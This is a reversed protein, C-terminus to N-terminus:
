RQRSRARSAHFLATTVLLVGLHMLPGLGSAPAKELVTLDVYRGTLRKGEQQSVLLLYKGPALGEDATLTVVSGRVDARLLEHPVGVRIEGTANVTFSASAGVALSVPPASPPDSPEHRVYGLKNATFAAFWVHGDEDEVVQQINGAPASPVEYEHLTGNTPDLRAIRDAFHEAFWISGDRARILGAPGSAVYYPSPSTPFRAQAYPSSAQVRTVSSTGMEAVWIGEDSEALGVPANLPELGLPELRGTAPDLRALDGGYTGGVLVDGSRSQLFNLPGFPQPPAPYETVAGTEPDLRVLLNADVLAYWLTGDPGFYIDGPLITPTPLAYATASQDDTDVRHIHTQSASWLTGDRDFRLAWLADSDSSKASALPIVVRQSANESWRAVAWSGDLTTWLQGQHDFTVTVPGQWEEPLEFEVVEAAAFPAAAVVPLLLLTIMLGVRRVRM